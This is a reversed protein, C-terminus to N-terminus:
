AHQRNLYASYIQQQTLYPTAKALLKTEKKGLDNADQDKPFLIIKVKKHQALEHAMKLALDYADEDLGIIINKCPSRVIESKQWASLSKGGLGITNDGITLCNTISEFIWVTDYMYLADRNYILQSKGIGIEEETPNTFKNGRGVFSRATFYVLETGYYYPLIIRGAYKGTACYGIGRLMLKQINFGRSILNKQVMKDVVGNEIGILKYEPPLKSHTHNSEYMKPITKEQFIGYDSDSLTDLFKRIDNSGQLSEIQAMLKIPKRDEGCKFCNSRNSQINVGFKRKAGCSPCDGSLWGKNSPKMNLSFRFYDYLKSQVKSNYM